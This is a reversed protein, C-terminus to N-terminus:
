TSGDGFWLVAFVDAIGQAAERDADLIEVIKTGGECTRAPQFRGPAWPSDM